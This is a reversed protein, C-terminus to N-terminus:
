KVRNKIKKRVLAFGALGSGLLILTAPEPVIERRIKLKIADGFETYDDVRMAFSGPTPYNFTVDVGIGLTNVATIGYNDVVDMAATLPNIGRNWYGDTSVDIVMRDGFGYALLTDRGLYIGCSICTLGRLQSIGLISAAVANATAQSDIITFPIAEFEYGPSSFQIVNIAVTSDQPVVAPDSIANAYGQLQLQWEAGSISGSGDMVLSLALTDAHAINISLSILGITIAIGLALWRVLIKKM